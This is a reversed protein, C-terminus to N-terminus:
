GLNVSLGTISVILDNYDRDSNGFPLDEIGFVSGRTDDSMAAMAVWQGPNAASFSSMMQGSNGNPLLVLGYAKGSVLPIDTYITEGMYNPLRDPSLYLNNAKSSTLAANLYGQDGPKFIKNEVIVAGTVPDCEHFALANSFAGLRQITVIVDGAGPTVTNLGTSGTSLRAKYGGAFSATATNGSIDIREAFLVQDAIRAVPKWEGSAVLSQVSGISGMSAYETSKWGTVLDDNFLKDISLSMSSAAISQDLLWVPNSTGVSQLGFSVKALTTNSERDLRSLNLNLPASFVLSNAQSGSQFGAQWTQSQGGIETLNIASAIRFGTDDDNYALYDPLRYGSPYDRRTSSEVAVIGQSYSGGRVGRSDPRNNKPVPTEIVADNWEWVNGTMDYAGYYSVSNKYSGVPVYVNGNDQKDNYNAANPGLFANKTDDPLNNSRTAYKWYYEPSNEPDHYAAKYWEDESPIWYRANATRYFIGTSAGNLEYAGSETDALADAGNHLWNVYRAASFWNVWGIPLNERGDAATYVWRGTDSKRTILVGPDELPESMEDQYLDQMFQKADLDFAKANLFAVYESVTTEYKGIRFTYDVRGFGTRSDATNGPNAVQILHQKQDRHVLNPSGWFPLPTRYRHSYSSAPISTSDTENAQASQQGVESSAIRFGTDDDIEDPTYDRRVDKGPNLLGLSWSGGRVGRSNANGQANQIISDNWEWLSGAQDYTGYYSRTSAISGVDLLKPEPKDFTIANYNSLNHATTLNQRDLSPQEDSRTPFKWYPSETPRSPDYYAAKYWEDEAPIWYKASPQKTYIGSTRGNLAYAGTETGPDLSPSTATPRGNHLWNAFRASAYWTTNAIPQQSAAEGANYQYKGPEILIRQVQTGAKSKKGGMSENWLSRLHAYDGGDPVFRAVANLFDVYQQVTVETRGISYLYNVSGFGNSSDPSNGPDGIAVLDLFKSM